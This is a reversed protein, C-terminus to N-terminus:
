DNLLEREVSSFQPEEYAVYSALKDGKDDVKVFTTQLTVGYKQRLGQNTDYDVKFITVGDPVGGQQISAEMARCQPCWPAHFFLLKIGATSLVASESYETYVGPQSDGSPTTPTKELAADKTDTTANDVAVDETPKLFVYAVSGGILFIIVVIALLARKDM